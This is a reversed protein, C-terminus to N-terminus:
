SPRRRNGTKKKPKKGSTRKVPKKGPPAQIAPGDSATMPQLPDPNEATGRGKAPENDVRTEATVLTRDPPPPSEETGSESEDTSIATGPEVPSATLGPTEAAAPATIPVSASTETIRGDQITVRKEARAAIKVDHTVMIITNGRSILDRFISLIEEGTHSDLNGTPEDALIISPRNVLARAIAVRQRQGGSLETPKHRMRDRLGVMEIAQMVLSEREKRSLGSYILPLEV